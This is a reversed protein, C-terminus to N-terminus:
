KLDNKLKELVLKVERSYINFMNQEMYPQLKQILAYDGNDLANDILEQIEAKKMSAYDPEGSAPEEQVPASDHNVLKYVSDTAEKEESNFNDLENEYDSLESLIDDIISDVKKRASATKNLIGRFLELFDGAEIYNPDCLKGFVYERMNNIKDIKPNENLFDRFDAAIEPGTKFDDVEDAMSSVNYKVTEADHIEDPSAGEGPASLSAILEYIGKVAEHLLMSFDIARVKIVPTYSVEEAEEEKSNIDAELDYPKVEIENEEDEDDEDKEWSVKVSGAFGMGSEKDREMAAAKMRPNSLWDMKQATDSIETLTRIFEEGQTNGYIDMIGNRLFESHFMTKSNIAEGQMINNFIKASHIKDLLKKDTIEKYEEPPTLDQNPDSDEDDDRFNEGPNGFKIDLKVGDLIEGYQNMIADTALQELEKEKGRTMQMVKPVLQGMLRHGYRHIDRETEGEIDLREKARREINKLYDADGPRKEGENPIGPNGKIDIEELFKKYNKM